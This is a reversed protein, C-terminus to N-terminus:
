LEGRADANRYHRRMLAGLPRKSQRLHPALHDFLEGVLSALHRRGRESNPDVAPLGELLANARAFAERLDGLHYTLEVVDGASVGHENLWQQLDRRYDDDRASPMQRPERM